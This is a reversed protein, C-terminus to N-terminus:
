DAPSGELVRGRIYVSGGEDRIIIFLKKSRVRRVTSFLLPPTLFYNILAIFPRYFRVIVVFLCLM